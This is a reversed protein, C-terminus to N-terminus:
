NGKEYFETKLYQKFIFRVITGILTAMPVALLVGIFGFLLGGGMLAFIIWVPHLGVKDGVINPTLVVSEVSQAFAFIGWIPM